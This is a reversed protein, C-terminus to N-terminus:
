VEFEKIKANPSLVKEPNFKALPEGKKVRNVWDSNVLAGKGLTIVNAEEREIFEKANEPDELGGNPL